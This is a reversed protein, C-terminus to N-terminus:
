RYADVPVVVCNNSIEREQESGPPYDPSTVDGSPHSLDDSDNGASAVLVMEGPKDNDILRLGVVEDGLLEAAGNVIRDLVEDLGAHSVISRQIRSLRELLMQRERLTALLRENEETQRESRSRLARENDLLRQMRLALALARAM